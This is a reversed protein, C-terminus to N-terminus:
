GGSAALVGHVRSALANESFPKQILSVGPDLRGQHVIANRSYGTMYLIKLGPRHRQAADGLARGNMGPMMVDTLLLDIPDPKRVYVLAAEGDPAELVRYNLGRLTETVFTRVDDDDEVVLVTERQGKQSEPAKTDDKTDKTGVFSRPLYIKVTTGEGPESYIRIHGGSQKVFGHVQSLGLGTGAGAPKTTFFPDFAKGIIDPSMGTGTDSMAILVYQGPKVGEATACYAEDLFANGTEITLKGGAPMADRANIALNLLASELETKDVETQWLGAGGVIEISISEGLARGFLDSMDAVLRNTDIPRPNLPQNRSFALLRKTLEAARLGARYVNNLLRQQRGEPADRLALELNGLIITLINNFDHAVGGTLQGVAEMKQSQRLSAEAAERREAEAYLENTTRMALLILAVFFATAPVGFVLHGAMQWLWGRTIDSTTLSSSVYVPFGELRRVSFRRELGDVSSVTTYEGGEPSRAVLQGFGTATDLKIGTTTPVPYRALVAGDPGILAFSASTREALPKYFREFTAPLVSIETIGSLTGSSDTRGKSVPFILKGTLAVRVVEGVHLNADQALLSKLYAREPANAAPPLPFLLSSVLADGKGNLIWISGIDPLAGVFQKLRESLEAESARITPETRGRTIQEVSDFTVSISRFVRLAHETSLDLAQQIRDDARDFATRYTAWSAYCFLLLPLVVSAALMLRLSRLAAHRRTRMRINAGQQISTSEIDTALAERWNLVAQIIM